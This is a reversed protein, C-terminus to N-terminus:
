DRWRWDGCTARVDRRLARLENRESWTFYGDAGAQREFWRLRWAKRQCTDHYRAQYPFAPTWVPIRQIPVFVPRRYPQRVVPPAVPRVVVVPGPRVVPVPLPRVEVPRNGAGPGSGQRNGGREQAVASGAAILVLGATAWKMMSKM